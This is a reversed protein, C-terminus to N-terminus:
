HTQFWALRLAPHLATTVVYYSIQPQIILKKFYSTLKKLGHKVAAVFYDSNNSNNDFGAKTSSYLTWLAQLSTLTQWLLRFGSASNNGELRKTIEVPAQLFDILQQIGEWEESSIEDNLPNYEDNYGQSAQQQLRTIFRTIPNRLQRKHSACVANIFNHLKGVVRHSRFLEYQQAPSAEALQSEFQSVGKGYLTAKVVLNIIHRACRIRNNSTLNINDHENLGQILENDNNTANDGVFCHLQLAIEFSNLAKLIVAAQAAGTHDGYLNQFALLIDRQQYQADAFHGVVNNQKASNNRAEQDGGEAGRPNIEHVRRNYHNVYAAGKLSRKSEM